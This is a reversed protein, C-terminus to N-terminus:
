MACESCLRNVAEKIDPRAGAIAMVDLYGNVYHQAPSPPLVKWGWKKSWLLSKADSLRTGRRYAESCSDWYETLARTLETMADLMRPAKAIVNRKVDEIGISSILARIDAEGAGSLMDRYDLVSILASAMLVAAAGNGNTKSTLAALLVIWLPGGAVATLFEPERGLEVYRKKVADILGRPSGNGYEQDFMTSVVVPAVSSLDNTPLWGEAQGRLCVALPFTLAQVLREPSCTDAFSIEGLRAVYERMQTRFESLFERTDSAVPENSSQASKTQPNDLDPDNNEDIKGERSLDIEKSRDERTFLLRMVGELPGSFLPLSAGFQAYGKSDLDHLSRVMAVPDVPPAAEHKDEQDGEKTPSRDGRAPSRSNNAQGSTFIQQSPALLHAAVAHVAELIRQRDASFIVRNSIDELSKELSRTLAARSLLVDSDVWRSDTTFTTKQVRILASAFPTVPGFSFEPPLEGAYHQAQKFLTIELDGSESHMLLSVDATAPLVPDILAEVIRHSRLRLSVIRYRPESSAEHALPKSTSNAFAEKPTIAQRDFTALVAGFDNARPEDYVAVLEVNAGAGDVLWAAASCNPSGTLCAPGDPGSFWYFKAHMVKKPDAPIIGIKLGLSTLAEANFSAHEPTACISVREVGFTQKAWRLFAGGEDTSGTLIKLEKFRRGHWRAAIQPALPSGRRGVVVPSPGASAPRRTLWAAEKRVARIQDAFTTSRVSDAVVNLLDDLWSGNDAEEPGIAWSTALESNGGWGTYTLNGSGVWVRGGKSSLRAILKPHFTNTLVTEALSYNRGLHVVQGACRRMADAVEGADAAVIVRRAGGIRLDGWPIREFFLPDFSYTLFIAIPFEGDRCFECPSTM